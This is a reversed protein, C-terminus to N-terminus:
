RVKGEKVFLDLKQISLPSGNIDTEIGIQVVKGTGSAQYTFNGIDIGVSYENINYQALGFEAPLSAGLNRSASQYSTSYDFGWKAIIPQNSAGILVLSIKKLIKDQGPKDMDVYNTFYSFRYTSTNDLYGTYKGIYGAKGIYLNRDTAALFSSPEITNWTTVRTSGDELQSRMDFCYTVKSVPLNLLYFADREYYVAKINKVVEQSVADLLDDRVNKSVDRLPMSKEQVVRQLSQVGRDSLFFVDNGTKAVSDRAICGTGNITDQLTISSPVSPNAYVIIYQQTFIIFFGNNAALATIRQNEPVVSAINLYGATGTLFNQPTNTDSFYVTQRDNAIDAVWVRGYAALAVNPKFTDTTHGAPLANFDSLLQFGYDGEHQHSGTDVITITQGVVYLDGQLAITVGTIGGSGNISTVTGTAGSGTSTTFSVPDGVTFLTGPLVLTLGTLKGAPATTVTATAGSGVLPLKHYVLPKHGEQVFLAHVSATLGLGFQQVAAQWLDDTITYSLNATNSINRPNLQTLTSLGTFLKNNGASLYTSSADNQIEVLTKIPATSLDTSTASVPLWGKRSGVRGYTDIVCNTADTAFSNSLAVSSDQSNLGSFGPAKFTIYSLPKSM